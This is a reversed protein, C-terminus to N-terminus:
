GVELNSRNCAIGRNSKQKKVIRHYNPVYAFSYLVVTPAMSCSDSINLYELRYSIGPTYFYLFIFIRSM